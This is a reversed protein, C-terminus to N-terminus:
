REIQIKTAYCEHIARGVAGYSSLGFISWYKPEHDLENYQLDIYKRQYPLYFGYDVNKDYDCIPLNGIKEFYGKLWPQFNVVMPPILLEGLEDCSLLKKIKTSNSYLFILVMGNVFPDESRVSPNIVKGYYYIDRMPQLAFLDGICPKITSKKMPILETFPM